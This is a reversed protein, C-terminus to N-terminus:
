TADRKLYFNQQQVAWHHMQNRGTQDPCCNLIRLLYARGFHGMFWSLGTWCLLCCTGLAKQGLIYVTGEFTTWRFLSISEQCLNTWFTYFSYTKSHREQRCVWFLLLRRLPDWAHIFVKPTSCLNSRTGLISEFYQSLFSKSWFHVSWFKAFDFHM